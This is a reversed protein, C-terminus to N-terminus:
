IPINNQIFWHVLKPDEYIKMMFGEETFGLSTAAEAIIKCQRIAMAVTLFTWNDPKGRCEWLNLENVFMELYARNGRWKEWAKKNMSDNMGMLLTQYGQTLYQLCEKKFNPTAEIFESVDRPHLHMARCAHTLGLGNMLSSKITTQEIVGLIM